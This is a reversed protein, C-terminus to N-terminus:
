KRHGSQSHIPMHNIQLNLRSLNCSTSVYNVAHCKSSLQFGTLWRVTAAILSMLPLKIAALSPIVHSDRSYRTDLIIIRALYGGQSKTGFLHSSYLGERKRRPSDRAVGLFDLFLQQSQSRSALYKGADNGGYDHDDYVGDVMIKDALLKQYEEVGHQAKLAEEVSGPQDGGVYAADGVWLWMQPSKARVAGWLRQPLGAKNCSGFALRKLQEPREVDANQVDGGSVACVDGYVRFAVALFLRVLRTFGRSM